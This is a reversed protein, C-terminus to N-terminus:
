GVGWSGGCGDSRGGGEVFGGARRVASARRRPLARAPATRSPTRARLGVRLAPCPVCAASAPADLCRRSRRGGQSLPLAPSARCVISPRSHRGLSKLRTAGGGGGRLLRLPTQFLPERSLGTGLPPDSVESSSAGGAGCLPKAGLSVSRLIVLADHTEHKLNPYRVSGVPWLTYGGGGGGGGHARRPDGDRSGPGRPPLTQFPPELSGGGGGGACVKRGPCGNVRVSGYGLLDQGGDTLAWLQERNPPRQSGGPGTRWRRRQEGERVSPSMVIRREMQAVLLGNRLGRTAHSPCSRPNQADGSRVRLLAM